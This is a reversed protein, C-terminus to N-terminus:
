CQVAGERSSASSSSSPRCVPHFIFRDDEYIVRAWETVYMTLNFCQSLLMVAYTQGDPTFGNLRALQRSLFNYQLLRELEESVESSFEFPCYRVILVCVPIKSVSKLLLCHVHTLIKGM